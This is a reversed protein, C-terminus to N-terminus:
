IFICWFRDPPRARGPGMPSSVARGWVGLQMLSSPCQSSSSLFFLHLPFLLPFPPFLFLLSISWLSFKNWARHQIPLFTCLESINPKHESKHITLFSLNFLTPNTFCLSATSQILFLVTISATQAAYLAHGLFVHNSLYDKISRLVTIIKVVHDNVNMKKQDVM